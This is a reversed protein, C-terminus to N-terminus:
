RGTGKGTAQPPEVIRRLMENFIEQQKTVGAVDAVIKELKAAFVEDSKIKRESNVNVEGRLKENALELAHFREKAQSEATEVKEIRREHDGGKLENTVQVTTWAGVVTIGGIVLTILNQRFFDTVANDAM